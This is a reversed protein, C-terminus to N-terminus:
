LSDQDLESSLYTYTTNYESYEKEYDDILKQTEELWRVCARHIVILAVGGALGTIFYPIFM